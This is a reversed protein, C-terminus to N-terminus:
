NRGPLVVSQRPVDPQKFLQKVGTSSNAARPTEGAKSSKNTPASKEGSSSRNRKREDRDYYIKRIADGKEIGSELLKALKRKDAGSLARGM